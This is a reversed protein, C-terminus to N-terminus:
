ELTLQKQAPMFSLANKKYAAKADLLGRIKDGLENIVEYHAEIELIREEM